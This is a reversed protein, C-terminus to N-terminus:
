PSKPQPEEKAETTEGQATASVDEAPKFETEALAADKEDEKTEVSAETDMLPESTGTTPLVDAAEEAEKKEASPEEALPEAGTKSVTEEAVAEAEEAAPIVEAEKAEEAVSPLETTESGKEDVPAADAEAVAEAEPQVEPEGLVEVPAEQEIKAAEVAPAPTTEEAPEEVEPIDAAVNLAEIPEEVEPIETANRLAEEVEVEEIKSPEVAEDGAGMVSTPKKKSGPSGTAAHASHPAPRRTSTATSSARTTSTEKKPAHVRPPTVPAKENVKSASSLTPRAMRALFGEDVEKEKKAM